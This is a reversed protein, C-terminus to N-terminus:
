SAPNSTPERSVRTNVQPPPPTPSPPAEQSLATQVPYYFSRPQHPLSRDLPLHPHTLSRDLPLPPPTQIHPARPATECAMWAPWLPVQTPYDPHCPHSPTPAGPHPLPSGDLRALSAGAPHAPPPNAHRSYSGICPHTTRKWAPWRPVKSTPFYDSYASPAFPPPAAALAPAPSPAPPNADNSPSPNGGAVGAVVENEVEEM